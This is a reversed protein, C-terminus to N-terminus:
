RLGMSLKALLHKAPRMVDAAMLGAGRAHKILWFPQTFVRILGDTLNVVARYDKKRSDAYHTLLVESGIDEAENILLKALVEVDRLGLNFGQGAVPHVTHSANGIIVARHATDSAARWLSLPYAVRQGVRKFKGLRWGFARQLASLFEEDSLDALAQEHGEAQTWVLSSRGNSMPLLAIPGHQTFREYAIQEHPKATEVNAILATQGYSKQEVDVGLLQRTKSGTGDAAVVLRTEIPFTDSDTELMLVHRDDHQEVGQLRAPMFLTLNVLQPLLEAYVRGLDRNEVVYGLAEVGEEYHHLRTVGLQGRDSVHISNIPTAFPKIASWLDMRELILRSGYSLAVSRDDFSPQASDSFPRAEILAVSLGSDKLSYALASGVLGAGIIVVDFHNVPENM